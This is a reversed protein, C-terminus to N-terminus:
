RRSLNGPRPKGARRSRFHQYLLSAIALLGAVGIVAFYIIIVSEGLWGALDWVVFITVLMGILVGLRFYRKQESNPKLSMDNLIM